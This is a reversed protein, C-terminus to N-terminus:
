HKCKLNELVQIKQWDIRQPADDGYMWCAVPCKCSDDCRSDMMCTSVRTVSRKDDDCWWSGHGDYKWKGGYYKELYKTKNIKRPHCDLM